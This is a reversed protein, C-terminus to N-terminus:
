YLDDELEEKNINIKLKWKSDYKGRDPRTNDLLSYSDTYHEKLQNENPIEYNMFDLLFHLRKVVAGSNMKIAYEILKNINLDNKSERLGKVVETIGGSYELHDLSDVITKELTSININHSGVAYAEFGFFKREDLTIFNYPIGHITKNDKRKTTVVFVSFPTQETMGHFNLASLFGIYYKSVLNSAIVFEHETYISKEGADLPIILYKGAEIRELWGKSHLKSAIKKANNYTTGLEEKIDDIRVMTKNKSALRSLLFSEKNSLGKRTRDSKTVM